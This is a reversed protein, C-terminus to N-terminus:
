LSRVKIKKHKKEPHKKTQTKKRHGNKGSKAIIPISPIVITIYQGCYWM